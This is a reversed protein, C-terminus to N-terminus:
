NDTGGFKSDSRKGKKKTTIQRNINADLMVYQCFSQGEYYTIINNSVNHVIASVNGTYNADIPCSAVCLGKIAASTRAFLFAVQNENPTIKVDLDYTGTSMPLFVVPKKLIIDVGADEIYGKIFSNESTESEFDEQKHGHIYEFRQLEDDYKKKTTIYVEKAFDNSPTRLEYEIFLYCAKLDALRVLIREDETLGNIVSDAFNREEEDIAYRIYPIDDKTCSLIDGRLVELSDHTMAHKILRQYDVKLNFWKGYTDYLEMVIATVLHSHEALNERRVLDRGNWRQLLRQKLANDSFKFNKVFNEFNIKGTNM